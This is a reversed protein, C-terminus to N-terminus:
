VREARKAKTPADTGYPGYGYGYGHADTATVGTLIFGLIPAQTSQLQRALEYLIRMPIGARVVLVVADIKATLAITDSIPLLPPADVLVLEFQQSLEELVHTLRSSELLDALMDGSAPAMTGASLVSLNPKENNPQGGNRARMATTTAGVAIYRTRLAEPLSRKGALVDTIGDDPKTHFFSHISPQRLDLDVLAVTRGSRAFAVALNAVTASKGERPVASTVMITRARRELNVFDLSTKLKRFSEAYVTGPDRLMVLGNGDRLHRPPRPVRALLPVGLVAEIEQDSRVRRDFAEAAFALGIGLVVGLLAGLVADRTPRPRVQAAQSAPALVQTNNALLTGITELQSEYQLLTAYSASGAAGTKRLTAIRVTLRKLAQDIRQTDLETKYQTFDQAYVNALRVAESANSWSVSVDLLDAASEPTVSSSTLLKQPTLGTVHAASTVRAALTPSRAVTAETSLFRTPDGLAPDQINTIASVVSSRDVLVRATARYLATQTNSVAYASVAAVIPLTLIIWLRSRLIAVYDPLTTPWGSTREKLSREEAVFEDDSQVM